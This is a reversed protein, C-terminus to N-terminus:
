FFKRILNIILTIVISLIIMTAVPFYIRSRGREIQIDGPLNGIIGGKGGLFYILAGAIIIILGVFILLKGFEPNM